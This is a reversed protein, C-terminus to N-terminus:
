FFFYFREFHGKSKIAINLLKTSHINVLKLYFWYKESLVSMLPLFDSKFFMLLLSFVRLCNDIIAKDKKTKVLQSVLEISKQIMQKCVDYEPCKENQLEKILTDALNVNFEDFNSEMLFLTLEEFFGIIKSIM